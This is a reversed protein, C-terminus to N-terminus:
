KGSRSLSPLSQGPAQGAAPLSFHTQAFLWKGNRQELVGTFRGTVRGQKGEATVDVTCETAVWAVPGAASVLPNAYTVAMTQMQALDRGVQAELAGLGVRWEDAGSGICLMDPDPSFLALIANKDRRAYGEAFQDLMGRVAAETKADAKM